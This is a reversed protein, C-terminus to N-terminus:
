SLLEDAWLAAETFRESLRSGELGHTKALVDAAEFDGCEYSELWVLPRRLQNPEGLLATRLADSLPLDALAEEMPVRLMAPLLSFLGLLYQETPHLQYLVAMSECFRARVLAMRLVETSRGSNLESAVALTAIRRFLDDGVAFLASRISTVRHEFGYLPSNAYRLLRYTLAPDCKVAEDIEVLNLPDEHLLRLLQLHAARNAPVRQKKLLLPRCFYFGQFLTFGEKCAQAYNSQTEVKKAILKASHSLAGLRSLTRRREDATANQFDIKIFDALHVFAEYDPRYLFDDLALRYGAAKLLHCAALVDPCPQPEAFLELVALAPPLIRAHDELLVGAPCNLFAPAGNTLNRLGFLLSNDIMTEAALDSDDLAPGTEDRFLLEYAQVQGQRDLIPERALYRYVLPSAYPADSGSRPSSEHTSKDVIIKRDALTTLGIM